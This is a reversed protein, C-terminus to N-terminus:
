ATGLAGFFYDVVPLDHVIEKATTEYHMRTNDRNRYQDTHFWSTDKICDKQIRAVPNDQQSFDVCESQSPLQEVEVGLLTLM